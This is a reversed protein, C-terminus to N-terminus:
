STGDRHPSGGLAIFAGAIEEALPTTRSPGGPPPVRLLDVFAALEPFSETTSAMIDRGAPSDDIGEAVLRWLILKALPLPAHGALPLLVQGGGESTTVGAAAAFAAIFALERLDTTRTTNAVAAVFTRSVAEAYMPESFPAREVLLSFRLPWRGSYSGMGFLIEMRRLCSRVLAEGEPSASLFKADQETIWAALEALADFHLRSVEALGFHLTEERPATDLIVGLAAAASPAGAAATEHVFAALALLTSANRAGLDAIAIVANARVAESRTLYPHLDTPTEVGARQLKGLFEERAVQSPPRDFKTEALIREVEPSTGASRSESLSPFALALLLIAAAVAGGV